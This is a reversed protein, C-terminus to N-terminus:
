RTNLLSHNEQPQFTAPDAPGGLEPGTGEEELFGTGAGGRDDSGSGTQAEVDNAGIDKDEDSRPDDGVDVLRERIFAVIGAEETGPVGGESHLAPFDQHWQRVLTGHQLVHVVGLASLPRHGFAFYVVNAGFLLAFVTNIFTWLGGFSAIGSLVTAAATDQLLKTATGYENVLTLRTLSAGGTNAGPFPQLATIEPIFLSIYTPWLARTRTQTRVERKTWTLMGFLNAGRLVPTPEPIVDTDDAKVSVRLWHIDAPISISISLNQIFPWRYPCELVVLATTTGFSDVRSCNTNGNASVHINSASTNFLINRFGALFVTANVSPFSVDGESTIVMSQTYAQAFQPVVWIFDFAIFPLLIACLSIIVARAFVISAAEGRVLPRSISRGLLKSLPTYPPHVSTCGGLFSFQQRLLGDKGRMITSARFLASLLLALLGLETFFIYWFLSVLWAFFGIEIVTLVFDALALARIRWPFTVLIHHLTILSCGIFTVARRSPTVSPSPYAVFIITGINSLLLFRLTYVRFAPSFLVM